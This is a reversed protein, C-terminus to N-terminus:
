SSQKLLFMFFFVFVFFFRTLSHFFFKSLRDVCVYCFRFLSFFSMSLNSFNISFFSAKRAFCVFCTQISFEWVFFQHGYSFFCLELLSFFGYWCSCVNIFDFRSSLHCYICVCFYMILMSVSFKMCEVNLVSFIFSPYFFSISDCTDFSVVVISIDINKHHHSTQLYM